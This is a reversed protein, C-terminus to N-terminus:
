MTPQNFGFMLQGGGFPSSLLEAAGAPRRVNDFALRRIPCRTELSTAGERAYGLGWSSQQNAGVPCAVLSALQSSEVESAQSSAHSSSSTTLSATSGSRTTEVRTSEDLTHGYLKYLTGRRRLGM